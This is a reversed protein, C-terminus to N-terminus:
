CVEDFIKKSLESWDRAFVTLRDRDKKSVPNNHALINRTKEIEEIWMEVRPIKGFFKKFEKNYTNIITRLDSIDTYFIPAAGRQSHWPYQKEESQRITVSRRISESVKHEWWDEGFASQMIISVVNRVSNEFIYVIPYLEANRHGSSVVSADVFPDPFGSDSKPRKVSLRSSPSRTELQSHPSSSGRAQRIAVLDEHSAYKTINVGNEAAVAIAAQHRPLMLDIAKESVLNYVQRRKLHLEKELRRLLHQNIKPM